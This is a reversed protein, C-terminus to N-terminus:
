FTVNVCLDKHRGQAWSKKPWPVKQARGQGPAWCMPGPTEWQRRGKHRMNKANRRGPPGYQKNQCFPRPHYVPTSPHKPGTNGREFCSRVDHKAKKRGGRWTKEGPGKQGSCEPHRWEKASQVPKVHSRRNRRRNKKKPLAVMVIDGDAQVRRRVVRRRKKQPGLNDPRRYGASDLDERKRKYSLKDKDKLYRTPSPSMKATAMKKQAEPPLTQKVDEEIARYQFVSVYKRQFAKTCGISVWSSKKIAMTDVRKRKTELGLSDPRRIGGSELDDWRRKPTSTKDQAENNSIHSNSSRSELETQGGLSLRAMATSIEKILPDEDGVVCTRPSPKRLNSKGFM